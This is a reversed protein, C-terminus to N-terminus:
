DEGHSEPPIYDGTAAMRELLIRASDAWEGGPSLSLYTTIADAARMYDGWKLYVRALGSYAPPYGVAIAPLLLERADADLDRSRFVSALLVRAELEYENGTSLLRQLSQEATLTDGSGLAARSRLLWLEQGSPDLSLAQDLVELAADFRSAENLLRTLMLWGRLDGPQLELFSRFYVEATELSGQLYYTTGVGLIAEGCGPDIELASLFENRAQEYLQQEMYARGTECRLDITLQQVSMGTSGVLAAAFLSLLQM